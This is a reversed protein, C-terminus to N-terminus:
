PPMAFCLLWPFSRGSNQRDPIREGSCELPTHALNLLPPAAPFPCRLSAGTLAPALLSVPVDGHRQAAWPRDPAPRLRALRARLQWPRATRLQGRRRRPELYPAVAGPVAAGSRAGCRERKGGERRM